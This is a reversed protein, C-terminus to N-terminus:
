KIGFHIKLYKEIMKMIAADVEGIKHIFRSKDYSVIHGVKIISDKFLRNRSNKKVIIDYKGKKGSGSLPMITVVSVAPILRDTIIILAPRDNCYEHGVGKKKDLQVLWFEGKRM